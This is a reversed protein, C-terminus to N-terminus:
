AEMEAPVAEAAPVEASQPQPAPAVADFDVPFRTVRPKDALINRCLRYLFHSLTLLVKVHKPVFYVSQQSVARRWIPHQASRDILPPNPPPEM